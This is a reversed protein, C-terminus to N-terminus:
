TPHVRLVTVSADVSPEEGAYELATKMVLEAIDGAKLSRWSLVAEILRGEGWEEGSPNKMELLSRSPVVMLDGASLGFSGEVPGEAEQGVGGNLRLMQAGDSTRRLVFPAEYGANLYRLQQTRWEYRGYFIQLRGGGEKAARIRDVERQLEGTGLDNRGRVWGQFRALATAEGPDGGPARAMLLALNQEPLPLVGQCDIDRGAGTLSTGACELGPTKEVPGMTLHSKISQFLKQEREDAATKACGEAYQAVGSVRELSVALEAGVYELMRMELVSYDGGGTKTGVVVFGALGDGKSLPVILKADLVELRAAEAEALASIESFLVSSSGSRGEFLPVSLQSSQALRRVLLSTASFTLEAPVAPGLAQAVRYHGRSELFIVVRETGALEAIRSVAAGLLEGQQFCARLSAVVAAARQQAEYRETQYQFSAKALAKWGVWALGISVLGAVTAVAARTEVGLSWGLHWAMAAAVLYAALLFAVRIGLTQARHRGGARVILQLDFSRARLTAYALTLLLVGLASILLLGSYRSLSELDLGM